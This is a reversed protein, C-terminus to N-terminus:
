ISKSPMLSGHCTQEHKNRNATQNHLKGCKSCAFPMDGTHIRVHRRLHQPQIFAKGCYDCKHNKIGTHRRAVHLALDQRRVFTQDCDSCSFNRVKTHSLMHERLRYEEPFGKGCVECKFREPNTHVNMHLRLGTESKYTKSCIHCVIPKENPDKHSDMHVVFWEKVTYLKGCHECSYDFRGWHRNLHDKFGVRNTSKFTVSCNQEPCAYLKGDYYREQHKKRKATSEFEVLCFHCPYTQAIGHHRAKHIRLNGPQTFHTNCVECLFNGIDQNRSNNTRPVDDQEVGEFDEDIDGKLDGEFTNSWEIPEDELYNINKTRRLSHELSIEDKVDKNEPLNDDQDKVEQKCVDVEESNELFVRLYGTVEKSSYDPLLVVAEDESRPRLLSFSPLLPASHAPSM